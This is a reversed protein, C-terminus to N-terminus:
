ALQYLLTERGHKRLVYFQESTLIKRWEEETKTIEFETHPVAQAKSRWPLYRSLAVTGVIATGAQLLNRKNM